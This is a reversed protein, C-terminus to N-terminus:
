ADTPFVTRNHSIYCPADRLPVFNAGSRAHLMFLALMFCLLTAHFVVIVLLGAVLILRDPVPRHSFLQVAFVAIGGGVLPLSVAAVALLM